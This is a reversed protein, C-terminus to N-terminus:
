VTTLVANIDDHMQQAATRAAEAFNPDRSVGDEAASAFIVGRSNNIIMGQGQANAGAKVTKELDGGQKGIGPILIPMDGVIKRIEALEESYTAGAVVACNGNYNWSKAVQTAVKKYFPTTQAYGTEQDREVVVELDQFEGSGKNSTKCLVIVGKNKQDLFPTMAEWGLTPHVTEADALAAAMVYGLNTNDIDGRKYDLIIPIDAAVMNIYIITQELVRLGDFGLAEYFASNIKYAGAIDKTRDVIRRNFYLQAKALLEKQRMTLEIICGDWDRQGVKRYADQAELLEEDSYGSLGLHLIPLKGADSDLGVCVFKLEQWKAKLLQIFNRTAV